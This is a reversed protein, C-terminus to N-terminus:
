RLYFRHSILTLRLLCMFGHDQVGPLYEIDRVGKKLAGLEFLNPANFFFQFNLLCGGEM